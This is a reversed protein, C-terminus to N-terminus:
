LRDVSRRLNARAPDEDADFAGSTFIRERELFGRLIARRKRRFLLGPVFAYEARVDREYEDFREAPAALIGLDVDVLLAADPTPPTAEHRTAMILAHIRAIVSPVVGHARLASAALDASRAENDTAYPDYVADHYFLAVAVEGPHEAIAGARELRTFCEDLHRLTHYARHPEAYRALLAALESSDPAPVGLAEWAAQWAVQWRALVRTV